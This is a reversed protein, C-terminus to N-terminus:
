RRSLASLLRCRMYDAGACSYSATHSSTRDLTPSPLQQNTPMIVLLVFPIVLGLLLGGVLWWLTGGALWRHGRFGLSALSAQMFAARRYNPTFVTAALETGGEMHAPHEVLNIYISADSFLGCAITAVSEAVTQFMTIVHSKGAVEVTPVGTVQAAPDKQLHDGSGNANGAQSSLDLRPMIIRCPLLLRAM